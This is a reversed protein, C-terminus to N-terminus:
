GRRSRGIRWGMRGPSHTFARATDVPVAMPHTLRRRAFPSYVRPPTRWAPESAVRADVRPPTSLRRSRFTPIPRWGAIALAV